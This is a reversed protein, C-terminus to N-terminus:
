SILEWYRFDYLVVKNDVENTQIQASHRKYKKKNDNLLHSNTCKYEYLDEMHDERTM